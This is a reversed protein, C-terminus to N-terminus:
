KDKKTQRITMVDVRLDNIAKANDVIAARMEAQGERLAVTTANLGSVAWM